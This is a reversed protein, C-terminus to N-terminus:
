SFRALLVSHGDCDPDDPIFKIVELGHSELIMRYEELSLSAHYVRDDGVHGDVEGEEPGVTLMLAGPAKLHAAFLPLVQRQEERTLHFFSNWAILGHFKEPLDLSRMDMQRWDHDPFRARALRIMGSSADVGTLQFGRGIIYDAIPEASGCGVDLVEATEPLLDLFRDLWAKEILGKYREADFRVSNREYVDQTTLALEALTLNPDPM